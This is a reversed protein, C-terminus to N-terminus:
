VNEGFLEVFLREQAKATEEETRKKLQELMEANERMQEQLQSAIQELGKRGLKDQFKEPIKQGARALVEEAVYIQSGLRLALAIADSPRADIPHETEGVRVIATAYYTAEQLGSIQIVDIRAGSAKLLNAMFDYSMPRPMPNGLLQIAISHGEFPGVWIPLIRQGEKDLLIVTHLAHQEKEQVIVDAVQVEVMEDKREQKSLAMAPAVIELPELSAFYEKLQQRSKHLRGKIASISIGLLAGIELLSLQEFYYLLVAERNKTSLTDIATLVLDHLERAEVMTQPDPARAILLVHTADLGGTIAELSLPDHRWRRLHNRCINIVIGYLWSQFREAQQLSSLSLYAALMAEQVLERAVDGDAIMRRAMALAGAQHRELLLGFAEKDGARAQVVLDSDVPDNM